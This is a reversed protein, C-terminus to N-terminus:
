LVFLVSFSKIDPWSHFYFRITQTVLYTIQVDNFHDCFVFGLRFNFIHPHSTVPHSEVLEVLKEADM